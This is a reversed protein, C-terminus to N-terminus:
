TTADPLHDGPENAIQVVTVRFSRDRLREAFIASRKVPDRSPLLRTRIRYTPAENGTKADLGTLVLVHATGDLQHEFQYKGKKVLAGGIVVDMGFRVDGNKGVTFVEGDPGTHPGDHFAVGSLGFALVFVGAAAMCTIRKM